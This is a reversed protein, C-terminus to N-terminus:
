TLVKNLETALIFRSVRYDHEETIEALEVFERFLVSITYVDGEKLYRASKSDVCVVKDGEKFPATM